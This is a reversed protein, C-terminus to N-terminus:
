FCYWQVHKQSMTRESNRCEEALIKRSVVILALILAQPYPEVVIAANNLRWVPEGKRAMECGFVAGDEIPEQRM